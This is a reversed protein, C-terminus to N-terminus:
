PFHRAGNGTPLRDLRKKDHAAPVHAVSRVFVLQQLRVQM